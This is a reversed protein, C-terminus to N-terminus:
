VTDAKPTHEYWEGVYSILNDASNSDILFRYTTSAKLIIERSRDTAGGKTRVANGTVGFGQQYILTGADSVAGDTQIATLASTNASNRNNNIPTVDTAGDTTVTAGEYISFITQGTGSIEFIMHIEPTAPTTLQFDVQDTSAYVAQGAVFYHNGAHIEHHEYEIIQLTHTSRDVRLPKVVNDSILGGALKETGKWDPNIAM